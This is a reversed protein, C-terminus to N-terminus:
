LSAAEADQITPYIRFFQGVHTMDILAKVRPNLGVFALKRGAKQASIQASVLAGLGASDIFPVGAFDVILSASPDDRIANRFEFLTHINLPGKIVFINQGERAGASTAIEIKEPTM